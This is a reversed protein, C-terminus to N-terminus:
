RYQERLLGGGGVYQFDDATRLKVQLRHEVRQDLRRCPKTRGVFAVM